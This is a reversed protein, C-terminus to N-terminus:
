LKVLKGYKIESAKAFDGEREAQTFQNHTLEIQEKLKNIRELPAKEAKWQALLKAHQEKVASLEKELDKLRNKSTEDKEKTLAVKEIELQRLSRELQDIIEPQSEISM